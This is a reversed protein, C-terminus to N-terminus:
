TAAATRAFGDRGGASEGGDRARSFLERAAERRGISENRAALENERNDDDEYQQEIHAWGVAPAFRELLEEIHGYFRDALEDGKIALVLDYMAEVLELDSMAVLPMENSRLAAIKQVAELAGASSM